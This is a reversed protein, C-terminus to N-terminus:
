KGSKKDNQKEKKETPKKIIGLTKWRQEEEKVVILKTMESPIWIVM